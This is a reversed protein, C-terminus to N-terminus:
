ASARASASSTSWRRRDGARDHERAALRQHGSLVKPAQEAKGEGVGLIALGNLILPSANDIRVKYVPKGKVM